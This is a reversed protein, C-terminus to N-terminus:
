LRKPLGDRLAEKLGKGSWGKVHLYLDLLHIPPPFNNNNAGNRSGSGEPVQSSTRM